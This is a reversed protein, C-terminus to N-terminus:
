GNEYRSLESNINDFKEKLAAQEKRLGVYRWAHNVADAGKMGKVVQGLVYNRNEFPTLYDAIEKFKAAMENDVSVQYPDIGMVQALQVSAVVDQDEAFERM